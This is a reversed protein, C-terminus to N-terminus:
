SPVPLSYSVTMTIFSAIQNIDAFMTIQALIYTICVAYIPEDAKETGQGFLSLGPVLRDRALAQLLKASGIVGMLVSFLSTAFEGMLVVVGSVNTQKITLLTLSPFLIISCTLNVIPNNHGSGRVGKRYYM